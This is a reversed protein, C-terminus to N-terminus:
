DITQLHELVTEVRAELPGGVAEHRLGHTRLTTDLLRHFRDRVAVGDRQIGDAVWDIDPMTLVTLAYGRQHEIAAPLLSEDDFYVVSALATILPTTDCVIWAGADRRAADIALRERRMQERVIGAQEHVLPTRRRRDCFERLYEDVRPAGLREALRAALTSKGSCEAGVLALARVRASM